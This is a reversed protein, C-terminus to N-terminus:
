PGYACDFLLEGAAMYTGNQGNNSSIYIYRIGYYPSGYDYIWNSYNNQNIVTRIVRGNTFVIAYAINATALITPIYISVYCYEDHTNQYDDWVASSCARSGTTYAYQFSHFNTDIAQNWGTGCGLFNWAPYIYDTADRPHLAPSEHPKTGAYVTPNTIFLVSYILAILICIYRLLKALPM